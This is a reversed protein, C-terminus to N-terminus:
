SFSSFFLLAYHSDDISGLSVYMWMLKANISISLVRAIKAVDTVQILDQPPNRSLASGHQIGHWDKESAYFVNLGFGTILCWWEGM